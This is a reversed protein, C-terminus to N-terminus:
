IALDSVRIVLRQKGKGPNDRKLQIMGIEGTKKLHTGGCPVTSFGPIEWYRREENLDSFSSIIGLDAKVIENASNRLEALYPSLNEEWVFDIRAKDESIHAGSKEIGMFRKYVLELIIEAAFHLRMLRYRRSWDIKMTVEDGKKLDHDEDIIYFIEQKEKHATLVQYKEITGFDSEQGGSLAYFITRDVTVIGGNVSTIITKLETQYPDVWFVKETM